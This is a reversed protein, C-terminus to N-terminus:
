EDTTYKGNLIEPYDPIVCANRESPPMSRFIAFAEDSSEAFIEAQAVMYNGNETYSMSVIYRNM